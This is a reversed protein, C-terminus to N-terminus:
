EGDWDKKIRETDICDAYERKWMGFETLISVVSCVAEMLSCDCVVGENCVWETIDHRIREESDYLIEVQEDECEKLYEGATYDRLYGSFMVPLEILKGEDNEICVMNTSSSIYHGFNGDYAKMIVVNKKPYVSVYRAM